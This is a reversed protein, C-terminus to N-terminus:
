QANSKVSPKVGEVSKGLVKNVITDLVSDEQKRIVIRQYMDRGFPTQILKDPSQGTIQALGVFEQAADSEDIKLGEHERISDLIFKTRLEKKVRAHEAIKKQEIELESTKIDKSTGDM